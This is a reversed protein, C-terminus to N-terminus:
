RGRPSIEEALQQELEAVSTVPLRCVFGRCVYATPRGSRMPRDALLPVGPADSPGAV